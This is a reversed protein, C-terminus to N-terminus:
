YVCVDSPRSECGQMSFYVHSHLALHLVTLLAVKLSFVTIVSICMIVSDRLLAKVDYICRNCNCLSLLHLIFILSCFYRQKGTRM